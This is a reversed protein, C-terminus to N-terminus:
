TLRDYGQLGHQARDLVARLRRQHRGGLREGLLVVAREVRQQAARQRQLQQGARGGSGAPAVQEVPEGAPLELEDDPGVRQDLRPHLEAVQRHDDDVLLV